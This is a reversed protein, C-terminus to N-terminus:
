TPHHDPPTQISHVSRTPYSSNSLSKGRRCFSSAWSRRAHPIRARVQTLRRVTTGAVDPVAANAAGHQYFPNLTSAVHGFRCRMLVGREGRARSRWAPVRSRARDVVMSHIKPAFPVRHALLTSAKRGNWRSRIAAPTGDNGTRQVAQAKAWRGPYWTRRYGQNRQDQLVRLMTSPDWQSRSSGRGAISTSCSWSTAM